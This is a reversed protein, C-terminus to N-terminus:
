WAKQGQKTITPINTGGSGTSKSSRETPKRSSTSRGIITSLWQRWARNENDDWKHYDKHERDYVGRDDQPRPTAASLLPTALTAGALLAVSYFSLRKM